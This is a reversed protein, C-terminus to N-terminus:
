FKKTFRSYDKLTATVWGTGDSTSYNYGIELGVPTFFVINTDPDSLFDLLEEDNMGDVAEVAGNQYENQNRFAKALEPSYEIVSGNDLIEGSMLDINISYLSISSELDMLFREQFVISIREEDMYTVYGISESAYSLNEGEQWEKYYAYLDSYYTAEEEIRENLEDVHPITGGVLRPYRGVATAGTKDDVYDYEEWEIQYSLDERVADALEVYYDDEASPIYPEKAAEPEREKPVEYLFPDEGGYGPPLLEEYGDPHGKGTMGGAAERAANRALVFVLGLVACLLVAIVTILLATIM